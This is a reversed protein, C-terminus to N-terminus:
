PVILVEISEAGADIEPKNLAELKCRSHQFLELQDRYLPATTGTRSIFGSQGPAAVTCLTVAGARFTVHHDESGKNLFSPLQIEEDKGAQPIGLFNDTVFKHKVVPTLWNSPDAGSTATLGAVAEQLADRIMQDKDAGHFFDYAQPVGADAGHLANFLLKSGNGPSQPRTPPSTPYDASSYNAFVDAPLDDALLRRYMIPLWARLVTVAPSVFFENKADVANVGDWEALLKAAAYSPDSSSLTRAAAEIYPIFYRANMDANSTLRDLSTVEEPTLKPKADLRAIFENVRSVASYNGGDTHVGPASQNNGNALYGQPPNLVQPNERFPHIGRWEMSGDGVAPLRVDQGKPRIPLRGVSVYGINGRDDAYFWNNTIAVRAAQALFEDWNTAQTSHLWAVLSQIEFGRWSSKMAYATNQGMDVATVRGHLTSFIEVTADAAGKVKIVEVRKDMARYRGNFRYEHPNTPNLDVQYVDNVDLPGATSGWAIKQNTGFLVAPHGFPSNGVINFGAGHLGVAYVSSPNFWGFQPGNNLITSGDTTKAASVIWAYSATPREEPAAIGDNSAQLFDSPAQM